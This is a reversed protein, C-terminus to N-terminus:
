ADEVEWARLGDYSFGLFFTVLKNESTGQHYNGRAPVFFAVLGGQLEIQGQQPAAIKAIRGQLRVLPAVNEWFGTDTKWDGLQSHHVLRGIGTGKGLWEFSKTRNRRFRAKYKCEELFREANSRALASGELAHLAYLIYLYYAAELTSSNARWYSVREIAADVSPPRSSRRVAQIWLRLTSSSNPEEQLNDELLTVIRDVERTPVKDWSRRHRALYTWVIQRRVPPRYVETRSLLSDWMQLARDHNGYLADLGARCNEEYPSAGQGERNRRVRELLDEARELSDRLFPDAISSSLYTFVNGGHQQAAYDFVRILMQVESIYGHEDDPDLERAHAFAASSQEALRVVESLEASNGIVRYIENRFAM